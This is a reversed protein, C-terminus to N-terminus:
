LVGWYLRPRPQNSVTPSEEIEPSCGRQQHHAIKARALITVHTFEDPPGKITPMNKVVALWKVPFLAEATGSCGGSSCRGLQHM